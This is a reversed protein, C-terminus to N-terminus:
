FSDTERHSEIRIFDGVTDKLSRNDLNNGRFRYLNVIATDVFIRSIEFRDSSYLSSDRSYSVNLVALNDNRSYSEISNSFRGFLIFLALALVVYSFKVMTNLHSGDFKEFASLRMSSYKFRCEDCEILHEFFERREEQTLQNYLARLFTGNDPHREM